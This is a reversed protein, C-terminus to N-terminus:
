RRPGRSPLSRAPRAPRPDSRSRPETRRLRDSCRSVVDTRPHLGYQPPRRLRNIHSGDLISERSVGGGRPTAKRHPGQFRLSAGTPSLGSGLPPVPGIDQPLRAMLKKHELRESANVPSRSEIDEGIRRDGVARHPRGSSARPLNLDHRSNSSAFRELSEGLGSEHRLVVSHFHAAQAPGQPVVVPDAHCSV